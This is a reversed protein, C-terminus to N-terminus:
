VQRNLSTQFTQVITSFTTLESATLYDGIYAFAIQAGADNKHPNGNLNLNGLYVSVTPRTGAFSTTNTATDVTNTFRQFRTTGNTSTQAFGTLKTLSTFSLTGSFHIFFFSNSSQYNAAWWQSGSNYAGMIYGDGVV